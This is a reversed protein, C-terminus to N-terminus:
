RFVVTVNEVTWRPRVTIDAQLVVFREASQFPFVSGADYRGNYNRDAFATLKYTGPPVDSFSWSQQRLNPPMEVSALLTNQVSRQRTTAGAASINAAGTKADTNGAIVGTAAFLTGEQVSPNQDKPELLIVYKRSSRLSDSQKGAQVAQLTQTVVASDIVVGSVAGYGRTDETQFRVSVVTDAFPLLASSASQLVPLLQAVHSGAYRGDTYLASRLGSSSVILRYWTNNSLAAVPEVTLIHPARRRIRVQPAGTTSAQNRQQEILANNIPSHQVELRVFRSAQEPSRILTDVLREDVPVSFVVDFRAKLPIGQLSDTLQTVKFSPLAQSVAQRGSGAFTEQGAQGSLMVAMLRAEPQSASSVLNQPLNQEDARAQPSTFMATKASDNISNGAVDRVQATLRWRRDATLPEALYLEVLGPNTLGLHAEGIRVVAGSASDALAFSSPLVSSSDLAESFKLRVRTPSLPQAEFLIPPTTDDPPLLRLQITATSGAALRIDGLACGVADNDNILNDKYEDRVAFVRYAGAALAGIEFTGKAGVQTRYKPSTHRPNLTDPNVGHLPYVFVFAGEPKETDLMGRIIGSDLTSGTAFVLSFATEPKNNRWDTYQTGLTLAVTINSDLPEDFTIYLYRGSWSLSTKVSPTLFIHQAFQQKQIYTSFELEIFAPHVHLSKNEPVTRLVTPPTKDPLGGSPAVSSACSLLVISIMFSGFLFVIAGHM